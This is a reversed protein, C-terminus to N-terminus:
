RPVGLARALPRLDPRGDLRLIGRGRANPVWRGTRSPRLAFAGRDGPALSPQDSVVLTLEGVTGGELEFSLSREPEGRLTQEVQLAVTSIILDDGHENRGFAASVREVTGVVVLTAGGFREVLQAAPPLEAPGPTAVRPEIEGEVRDLASGDCGVALLGLVVAVMSVSRM